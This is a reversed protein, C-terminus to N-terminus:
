ILHLLTIVAVGLLVYEFRVLGLEGIGAPRDLTKAFVPRRANRNSWKSTAFCTGSSQLVELASVVKEHM